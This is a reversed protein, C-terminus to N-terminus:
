KITYEVANKIDLKFQKVSQDSNNSHDIGNIDFVQLWTKYGKIRIFLATNNLVTEFSLHYWSNSNAKRLTNIREVISNM